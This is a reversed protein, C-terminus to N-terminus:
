SLETITETINMVYVFETIGFNKKVKFIVNKWLLLITLQDKILMIMMKTIMTNILNQLIQPLSVFHVPVTTGTKLIM